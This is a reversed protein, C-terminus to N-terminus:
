AASGLPHLSDHDSSSYRISDLIENAAQGGLIIINPIYLKSQDGLSPHISIQKGDTKIIVSANVDTRLLKIGKSNINQLTEAHPHGYRNKQGCSIVMVKPDVTDLFRGGSATRSGHHGAKLVESELTPILGLKVAEMMARESPHEADGTFLFDIDDYSLRVVVSFDNVHQRSPSADKAPHYVRIKASGFEFKDGRRAVQAPTNTDAIKKLLKENTKTSHFFGSSIVRRVKFEDIIKATKALHDLHSHSILIFDLEKVKKKHLYDIVINKRSRPGTDIMAFRGDPSELLIADGQGVTVFHVKFTKGELHNTIVRSPNAGYLCSTSFVLALVTTLTLYRKNKQM